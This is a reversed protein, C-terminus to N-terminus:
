SISISIRLPPEEENSFFIAFGTGVLLGVPLGVSMGGVGVGDM